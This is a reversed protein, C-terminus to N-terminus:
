LTGQCLEKAGTSRFNVTVKGTVGDYGVKAVLLQVLQEQERTALSSRFLM